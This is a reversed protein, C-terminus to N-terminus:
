SALVCKQHKQSLLEIYVWSRCGAGAARPEGRCKIFVREEEGWLAGFFVGAFDAPVCFSGEREPVGWAVVRLGRPRGWGM